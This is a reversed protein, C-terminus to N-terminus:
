KLSLRLAMWLPSLRSMNQCDLDNANSVIFNFIIIVKSCFDRRLTVTNCALPYRRGGRLLLFFTSSQIYLGCPEM